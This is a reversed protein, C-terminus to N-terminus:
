RRRHAEIAQASETVIARMANEAADGDGSQVASAVLGHLRIAEPDATHPMLKYRTRGALSEVVLTSMSMLMMNGSAALLARHFDCDHALYADADASRATSSMSRFLM